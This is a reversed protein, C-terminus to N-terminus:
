ATPVAAFYLLSRLSGTQGGSWRRGVVLVLGGEADVAAKSSGPCSTIGSARVRREAWGVLLAM